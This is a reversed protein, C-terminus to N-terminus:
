EKGEEKEEENGEEKEEVKGEEKGNQDKGEQAQKDLGKFFPRFIIAIRPFFLPVLATIVNFCPLLVGILAVAFLMLMRMRKSFNMLESAKKEERTVAKQVTLGLLFFNLTAFTGSFLNGLLVKYDWIGAILFVSELILSLIVVFSCIYATERKVTRDVKGLYLKGARRNYRGAKGASM